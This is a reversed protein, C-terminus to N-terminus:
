ATRLTPGQWLDWDLCDPVTVKKWHVDTGVVAKKIFSCRTTM